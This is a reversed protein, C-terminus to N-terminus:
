STIVHTIVYTVFIHLVDGAELTFAGALVLSILVRPTVTTNHFVADRTGTLGAPELSSPSIVHTVVVDLLTLMSLEDRLTAAKGLVLPNLDHWAWKRTLILPHLRRL